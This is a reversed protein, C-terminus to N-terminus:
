QYRLMLCVINYVHCPSRSPARSLTRLVVTTRLLARSPDRRPAAPAATAPAPAATAWRTCAALAGSLSPRPHSTSAARGRASGAPRARPAPVARQRPAARVCRRFRRARRVAPSEGGKGSGGPEEIALVIEDTDPLRTFMQVISSERQEPTQVDRSSRRRRTDM